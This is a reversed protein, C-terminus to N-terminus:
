NLSFWSLLIIIILSVFLLAIICYGVNQSFQKWHDCTDLFETGCVICFLSCPVPLAKDSYFTDYCSLVIAISLMLLWLHLTLNTDWGLIISDSDALLVHAWHM